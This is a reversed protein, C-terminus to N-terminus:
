LSANAHFEENVSVPNIIRNNEEDLSYPLEGNIMEYDMVINQTPANGGGGTYGSIGSWGAIRHANSPTFYRAFIIENSEELFLNRYDDNLTYGKDLLAEAADAAKQWKGLDNDPNNLPSAAYLLVRSKLARAADPTARGKECESQPPLLAIAEDLESIIFDVVNDYSERTIKTYDGGLEFLENM